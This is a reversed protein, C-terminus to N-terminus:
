RQHEETSAGASAQRRMFSYVAAYWSHLVYSIDWPALVGLWVLLGLGAARRRDLPRAAASQPPRRPAADSWWDSDFLAEGSRLALLRRYVENTPRYILAQNTQQQDLYRKYRERWHPYHLWEIAPVTLYRDVSLSYLIDLDREQIQIPRGVGRPARRKPPSPPNEDIM